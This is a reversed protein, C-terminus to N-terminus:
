AKPAADALVRDIAESNAVSETMPFRPPRALLLADAFDEVMNRYSNAVPVRIEDCHENWPGHFHRIVCERDGPPIMGDEVFLRGKTGALEYNCGLPTQFGCAFHGMAGSAFRM